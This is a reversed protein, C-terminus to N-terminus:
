YPSFLIQTHTSCIPGPAPHLLAQSLPQSQFLAPSSNSAPRLPFSPLSAMAAAAAISLQRQILCSALPKTLDQTKQLALRIQPPFCVFWSCDPNIKKLPKLLFGSFSFSIFDSYSRPWYFCFSDPNSGFLRIM